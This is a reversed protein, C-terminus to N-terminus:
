IDPYFFSFYLFILLDPFFFFFVTELFRLAERFPLDKKIRTCNPGHSLEEDWFPLKSTKRDICYQIFQVDAREIDSLHKQM